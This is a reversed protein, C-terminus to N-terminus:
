EQRSLKACQQPRCVPSPRVAVTWADPLGRDPILILQKRDKSIEPVYLTHRVSDGYPQCRELLPEAIMLRHGGGVRSGLRATVPDSSTLQVTWDAECDVDLATSM